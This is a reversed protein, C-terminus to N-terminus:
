GLQIQMAKDLGTEGVEDYIAQKGTCGKGDLGDLNDVHSFLVEASFLTM